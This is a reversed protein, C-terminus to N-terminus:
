RLTHPIGFHKSYVEGYMIPVAEGKNQIESRTVLGYRERLYDYGKQEKSNEDQPAIGLTQLTGVLAYGIQKPNHQGLSSHQEFGICYDPMVPRGAEKLRRWIQVGTLHRQLTILTVHAPFTRVFDPEFADEVNWIVVGQENDAQPLLGKIRFRNKAIGLVTEIPKRAEAAAVRLDDAFAKRSKDTWSGLFVLTARKFVM